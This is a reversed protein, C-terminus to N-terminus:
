ALERELDALTTIPALCQTGSCVYATVPAFEARRETLLGAPLVAAAPIALTLRRPAYPTACREWWATLLAPDGRLVIIQAPELWEELATLMANCATPIQGVTPGAWRLTREAADLYDM